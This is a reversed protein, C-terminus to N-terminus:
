GEDSVYVMTLTGGSLATANFRTWPAILSASNIDFISVFRSNNISGNICIGLSGGRRDYPTYWNSNDYSVQRTLGNITGNVIFFIGSWADGKLKETNIGDTTVTQGSGIAFSNIVSGGTANLFQTQM